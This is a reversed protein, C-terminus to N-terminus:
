GSRARAGPTWVPNVRELNSAYLEGFRQIDEALRPRKHFKGARPPRVGLHAKALSNAAGAMDISALVDWLTRILIRGKIETRKTTQKRSRILMPNAAKVIFLSSAIVFWCNPAHVIHLVPRCPPRSSSRIGNISMSVSTRVETGRRSFRDAEFNDGPGCLREQVRRPTPM